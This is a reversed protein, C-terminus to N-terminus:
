ESVQWRPPVKRLEGDNGFHPHRHSASIDTLSAPTPILKLDHPVLGRLSSRNIRDLIEQRMRIRELIQQKRNGM